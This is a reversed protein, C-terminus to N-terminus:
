SNPLHEFAGQFQTDQRQVQWQWMAWFNSEASHFCTAQQCPLQNLAPVNGPQSLEGKDIPNCGEYLRNTQTRKQISLPTLGGQATLPLHWRRMPPELQVEKYMRAALGFGPGGLHASYRPWHRPYSRWHPLSAARLVEAKETKAEPYVALKCGRLEQM